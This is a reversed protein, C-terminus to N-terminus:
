LIQVCCVKYVSRKKSCCLVGSKLDSESVFSVRLFFCTSPPLFRRLCQEYEEIGLVICVDARAHM